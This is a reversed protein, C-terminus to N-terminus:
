PKNTKSIDYDPSLHSSNNMNIISKGHIELIYFFSLLKPNSGAAKAEAM